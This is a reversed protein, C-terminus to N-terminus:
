APILTMAFCPHREGNEEYYDREEVEYVHWYETGEKEWLVYKQAYRRNVGEKAAEAGPRFSDEEGVTILSVGDAWPETMAYIKSGKGEESIPSYGNAKATEKAREVVEDMPLEESDPWDWPHFHYEIMLACDDVELESGCPLQAGAMLRIHDLSASNRVMKMLAYALECRQVSQRPKLLGDAEIHLMGSEVAWAMAEKAFNGVDAHDPYKSLDARASTDAGKWDMFRYLTVIMEQRNLEKDPSFATEQTGNMIGENRAWNAAGAFWADGPVDTFPAPVDEGGPENEWNYLVKALMSRKLTRAPAFTGDEYGDMMWRGTAWYVAEAFWADEPVDQFGGDEEAAAAPLVAALMLVATLASLWRKLQKM